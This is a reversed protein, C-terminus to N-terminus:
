MNGINSYVKILDPCSYLGICLDHINVFLTGHDSSHYVSNENNGPKLTIKTPALCVHFKLGFLFAEESSKGSGVSINWPADSYGLFVSVESTKSINLM